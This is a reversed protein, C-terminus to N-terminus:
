IEGDLPCSKAEFRPQVPKLWDKTESRPQTPQRFSERSLTSIMKSNELTRSNWETASNQLLWNVRSTDTKLSIRINKEPFFDISSFIVGGGEYCRFFELIGNKFLM